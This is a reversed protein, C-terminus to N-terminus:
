VRTRSTGYLEATLEAVESQPVARGGGGLVQSLDVVNVGAITSFDAWACMPVEFAKAGLGASAADGTPTLRATRCKMLAGEFGAPEVDSAEGVFEIRVDASGDGGSEELKRFWGDLAKEPDDIEGWLGTLSLARGTLPQEPDGSTYNAGAQRAGEIGLLAEAESKEKASLGDTSDREKKFEGASAAPTLRYGKTDAAVGSGSGGSTLWWTGGAVVALAAVAGGAVLAKRRGGTRAAPPPPYAGPGAGGQPQPGYPGPQPAQPHGYGHGPQPPPFGGPQRPPGYGPQPAGHPGQPPPDYPGPQRPQGGYPGPENHSM